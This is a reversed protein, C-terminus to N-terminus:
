PIDGISARCDTYHSAIDGDNPTFLSLAKCINLNIFASDETNNGSAMQEKQNCTGAHLYPPVSSYRNIVIRALPSTPLSPVITRVDLM